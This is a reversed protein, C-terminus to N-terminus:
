RRDTVATTIPSGTPNTFSDLTRAFDQSGTDPVTVQRSVSLGALTQTDVAVTQGGNAIAANGAPQYDAGGVKLRNLGHFPNNTGTVLQGAGFTKTQVDFASGDATTLTDLSQGAANLLVGVTGDANNGVVLDPQGDGNFDGLSLSESYNGGSSLAVPTGFTGNGNGPLLSIVGPSLTTASRWTSKEM